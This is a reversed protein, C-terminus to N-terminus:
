YYFLGCFDINVRYELIWVIFGIFIFFCVIIVWLGLSWLLFFFWINNENDKMLVLMFVGFEIYLLMFDVFLFRNVRIIIDGVVVDFM